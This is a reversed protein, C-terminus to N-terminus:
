EAEFGNEVIFAAAKEAMTAAKRIQDPEDKLAKLWSALYSAHNEPEVPVGLREGLYYAGLEAVLEEFAYGERNKVQLGRDCRSKHGTWHVLEHLLTGWYGRESKFQDANPLVVSDTAPQYFARDGGFSLDVGLREIMSNLKDADFSVVRPEVKPLEIGECDSEVNFVNASGFGVVFTSEKGNADERKKIIPFLIKTAKAGKRVNGGLKKAQDYGVWYPCPNILALYLANLGRYPKGTQLNTPWETAGRDEWPKQWPATGAQIAEIVKNVIDNMLAENKM